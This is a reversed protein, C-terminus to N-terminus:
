SDLPESIRVIGYGARPLVDPIARVAERDLERISEDLESWDVLFPTTKTTVDKSGGARWGAAQREAVWREHELKALWEVESGRFEFDITDGLGLPVIAAGIARLKRGIDAAQDRNSEKLAEDLHSWAPVQLGDGGRAEVYTEHIARAIMDIMAEDIREPTCVGSFVDFTDVASPLAGRRRGPTRGVCAIVSMAGPLSEKLLAAMVLCHGDGEVGVVTAAAAKMDDTPDLAM